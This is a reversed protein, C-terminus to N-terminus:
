EIVEDARTLVASPVVLDLSKATRLNLSFEFATRREIPIDGAAVGCFIQAIQDAM